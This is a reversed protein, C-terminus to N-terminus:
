LKPFSILDSIILTSPFTKKITNQFKQADLKTRFDGVRLKFNPSEYIIKSATGRYNEIFNGKAGDVVSKNSSSIIQIRYGHIIPTVRNEGGAMKLSVEDIRNDKSISIKGKDAVQKIGYVTDGIRVSDTNEPYLKWTKTTDQSFGLVSIFSFIFVIILRM